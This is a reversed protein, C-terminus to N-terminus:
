RGILARREAAVFWIYEVRRASMAMLQRECAPCLCFIAEGEGFRRRCFGCTMSEGGVALM